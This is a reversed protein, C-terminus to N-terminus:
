GHDGGLAKRTRDVVCDAQLYHAQCYGHHDRWCPEYSITVWESLLARAERLERAMQAVTAPNATAAWKEAPSWKVISRESTCRCGGNTRMGGRKTAFRCSNDGCDPGDDAAREIERLREESLRSPPPTM